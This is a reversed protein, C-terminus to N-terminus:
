SPSTTTPRGLGQGAMLRAAGLKVLRALESQEQPSLVSKLERMLQSAADRRLQTQDVKPAPMKAEARRMSLVARNLAALREGLGDWTQMPNKAVVLVSLRLLKRNLPTLDSAPGIKRAEDLVEALMAAIEADALPDFARDQDAPLPEGPAALTGAAGAAGPRQRRQALLQDRPPLSLEVRWNQVTRESARYRAAIETVPTDLNGWIAAFRAKQAPTHPKLPHPLGNRRSLVGADIANGICGEHEAGVEPDGPAASSLGGSALPGSPDDKAADPPPHAGGDPAPSAPDGALGDGRLLPGAAWDPRLGSLAAPLSSGSPAPVTAPAGIVLADLDLPMDETLDEMFFFGRQLAEWLPQM